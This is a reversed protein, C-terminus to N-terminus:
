PRPRWRLWLEFVLLAWLHHGLNERAAAHREQLSRVFDPNLYERCRADAALVTDRVLDELDERMWRHVPLSFGRKRQALAAAPLRDRMLHKLVRKSQGCAYKLPFPLTAAFEAIRHDLLPVRAELGHAMSMRDVKTLIDDPLYMRTDIFLMQDEPPLDACEAYLADFRGPNEGRWEPRILAGRAADTFCSLRRQFGRAPALFSDEHFRQLRQASPRDPLRGILGGAARRMWAPVRRYQDVRRAMHTWTYGAFLEDGGDGSLAVTVQERALQSVLWMPLLSSDAFPAGVHALMRPLLDALDPKLIAETHDTQFHAAVARAYPREDAQPDEFGISFTKLPAARDRCVAAVVSSSDIGGSLFAGLPVDSRQRLRVSDALLEDLRASARELTWSPDPAYRLTWYPSIRFAGGRWVLMCGPELAHIGRYITEPGPTYLYQFYADMAAPNIATDVLGCRLLPALESAFALGGPIEAYYLPKIGLRDRVLTLTEADPNYFGAAFMGNCKLFFGEGGGAFGELFVETDGTTRFRTGAGELEARLERFNYVEGNYTIIQRGDASAMPQHSAATPDIVSLRRHGIEARPGVWRGADDPGRHALEGSMARVRARTEDDPPERWVAGSIGCM